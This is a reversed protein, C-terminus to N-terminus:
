CKVVREENDQLDHEEFILGPKYSADGIGGIGLFLLAEKSAILRNGFCTPATKILLRHMPLMSASVLQVFLM